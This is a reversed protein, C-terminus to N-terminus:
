TARLKLCQAAKERGYSEGHVFPPPPLIPSPSPRGVSSCDPRSLCFNCSSLFCNSFRARARNPGSVQIGRPKIDSYINRPFQSVRLPFFFLPLVRRFPPPSPHRSGAGGKRGFHVIEHKAAPNIADTCERTKEGMIPPIAV